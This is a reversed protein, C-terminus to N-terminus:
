LNKGKAVPPAVKRLASVAARRVTKDQDNLAAELAPIAAQAGPGAQRLAYAASTRSFPEPDSRLTEALVELGHSEGADFRVLWAATNLRDFAGRLAPPVSASMSGPPPPLYPRTQDEADRLKELLIPVVARNTPCIKHLADAISMWEPGGDRDTGTETRHAELMTDLAPMAAPGIEGIWFVAVSRSPPNGAAEILLRLGNGQPDIQHIAAAARYWDPTDLLKQPFM